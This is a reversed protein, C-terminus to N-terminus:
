LFTKSCQEKAKIAPTLPQLHPFILTPFTWYGSVGASFVTQDECRFTEM